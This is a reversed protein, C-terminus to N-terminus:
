ECLFSTSSYRGVEYCCVGYTIWGGGSGGVIEPRFCVLAPLIQYLVDSERVGNILYHVGCKANGYLEVGDQCVTSYRHVFLEDMKLGQVLARPGVARLPPLWM